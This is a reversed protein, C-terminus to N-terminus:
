LHGTWRMEVFAYLKAFKVVTFRRPQAEEGHGKTKEATLSRLCLPRVSLAFRTSTGLQTTLFYPFDNMGVDIVLQVPNLCSDNFAM